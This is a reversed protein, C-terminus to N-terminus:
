HDKYMCIGCQKPKNMFITQTTGKQSLLKVFELVLTTVPILKDFNSYNECPIIANIDATPITTSLLANANINTEVNDDALSDELEFNPWVSQDYKFFEPCNWWLSNNSLQM